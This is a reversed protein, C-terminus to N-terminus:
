DRGSKQREQPWEGKIAAGVLRQVSRDLEQVDGRLNKVDVRTEQVNSELINIRYENVYFARVGTFISVALGALATIAIIVESISRGTSKRRRDIFQQGDSM